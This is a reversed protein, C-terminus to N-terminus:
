CILIALPWLFVVRQALFVCLQSQLSIGSAELGATTQPKLSNLHM